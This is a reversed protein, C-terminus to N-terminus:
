HAGQKEAWKSGIYEGRYGEQGPIDDSRLLWPRGGGGRLGVRAEARFGRVGSVGRRAAFPVGDVAAFRVGVTLGSAGVVTGRPARGGCTLTASVEALSPSRFVFTVCREEARVDRVSLGLLPWVDPTDGFLRLTRGVLPPMGSRAALATPRPIPTPDCFLGFTPCALLM